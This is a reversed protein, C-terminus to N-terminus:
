EDKGECAACWLAVGDNYWHERSGCRRCIGAKAASVHVPQGAYQPIALEKKAIKAKAGDDIRKLVERTEQFPKAGEKRARARRRTAVARGRTADDMRKGLTRMAGNFLASEPGNAYLERQAMMAADIVNRLLNFMHTDTPKEAM